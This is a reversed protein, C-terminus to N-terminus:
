FHGSKGQDTRLCLSKMSDNHSKTFACLSKVFSLFRLVSEVFDYVSKPFTYKIELLNPLIM